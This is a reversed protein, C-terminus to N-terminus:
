KVVRTFSFSGAQQPALPAQGPAAVLDTYVIVDPSTNSKGADFTISGNNTDGASGSKHTTSTAWNNPGANGDETVRINQASLGVSNSGVPAVDSINTYTIRYQILQGPAAKPLLANPAVGDTYAQIITGDAASIQAEKTLKLYGTYIRDITTNTAGSATTATIPVGYGKLQATGTPLDVEVGYNVPTGGVVNPVVLPTATTAGPTDDVFLYGNVTNEYVYTKSVSGQTITVKTGTPLSTPDAPTTPVLNVSGALTGAPTQLTNSFAVAAPNIPSAVYSGNVLTWTNALIPAAVNTFDDNNGVPGTADAHGLPGNLIGVAGPPVIAFVNPEGSDGTGTNNNGSDVTGPTTPNVVGSDIVPKGTIPDVLGPNGTDGYNNPKNDGSEDYVPKTLDPTGNVSTSGFVQAINAVNGGATPITTLEVTVKMGTIAVGNAAFPGAAIFGVRTATAPVSVTGTGAVTTWSADNAKIAAASDTTYVATWGTPVTLTKATTYQPIADSVLVRKVTTGDVKVDNGALPAAIQSNVPSQSAVTLGLDYTLTDDTLAATGKNDVGNVINVGNNTERVKTVTAFAQPAAGVTVSNSASAERVGNSPAGAVEKYLVGGFTVDGGTSNDVTYVDGGTVDLARDTNQGDASGTHGLTVEVAQGNTASVTTLVRVKISDGPAKSDSIYDGGPAITTWNTGDLSYQILDVSGGTAAATGPIRLQTPDNGVNTVTFNFYVKDGTVAGTNTPLLTNPNVVVASDASLTVGAVEAVEVKVTNSFTNFPQTPQTPDEYSATATNTIQTGAATGQALVPAALQMLGGGLLLSAVLPRSYKSIKRDAKV